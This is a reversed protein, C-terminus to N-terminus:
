SPKTAMVILEEGVVRGFRVALRERVQFAGARVQAVTGRAGSSVRWIGRAGTVASTLQNISLGAREFVLRFNAARFLMLHRPPDLAYWTARFTRHGWSEANPTIAVLTGGPKLIRRCEALLAIPDHVHEVVHSMAIADFCNDAFMASPLDGGRVKLGKERAIGAALPDPEVGEVDWGLRKMRFLFDGNGCGVDLLRAGPAPAPLYMVTRGFEALGAPNLFALPYLWSKDKAYGFRRQAFSDGVSSHLRRLASDVAPEHTQYSVYAKAIDAETPMPDLWLLGCTRNSCQSMHWTGPVGYRRDKLGAYLTEGPSNCLYCEPQPLGAIM